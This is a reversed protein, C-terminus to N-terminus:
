ISAAIFKKRHSQKKAIRRHRPEPAAQPVMSVIQNTTSRGRRFFILEDIPLIIGYIISFFFTQFWWGAIFATRTEYQTLNKKLRKRNIVNKLM